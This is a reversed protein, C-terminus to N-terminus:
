AWYTAHLTAKPAVAALLERTAAEYGFRPERVTALWADRVADFPVGAAVVGVLADQLPGVTPNFAVSELVAGDVLRGDALRLVVAAQGGSYPAHARGAAAVLRRAVDAPLDDGLRPSAGAPHPGGSRAPAEGLDRPTFPVPYLDWLAVDAGFPDILRLADAWSLEALVQRCHACPRAQSIALVELNLGLARARLTVFGEGHVTHHISAGPFELNGGFVLDGSAAVGVAGVHYASIAPRALAAAGPLALLAAERADELGFAALLDRVEDATVLSRDGAASSDATRDGALRAVQATFAAGVSAQLSTVRAAVVEDLPFPWVARRSPRPSV